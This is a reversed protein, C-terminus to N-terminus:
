GAKKAKTAEVSAKLAEMLDVVGTPQPAEPAVIEQGEVKQRAAAEVAERSEDNWASPDFTATLNDIIMQAMKVEDERVEVEEELTEFQPERIEDPWYMTEMILVGEDARLTALYERERIAVKALGVMNKEELANMLIRYAKVGTKEPALYYSSRYYIPDIESADVFQIVDVMGGSIGKMIDSLEDSTFVVYRGKDVEYGKVINEYPVEVGDTEAVRKYKIPSHDSDRLQRFKPRKNETATYLGVPITVLGFSIAGKWISRM